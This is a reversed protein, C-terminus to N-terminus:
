WSSVWGAAYGKGAARGHGVGRVFLVQVEGHAGPRDRTDAGRSGGARSCRKGVM